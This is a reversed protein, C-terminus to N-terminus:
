PCPVRGLYCKLQVTYVELEAHFEAQHPCSKFRPSQEIGAWLQGMVPKLIKGLGVASGKQKVAHLEVGWKPNFDFDPLAIRNVLQTPIYENIM